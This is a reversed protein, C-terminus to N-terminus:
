VVQTQENVGMARLHKKSMLINVIGSVHKSTRGKDSIYLM